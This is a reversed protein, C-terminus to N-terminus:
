RGHRGGTPRLLIALDLLTGAPERVLLQDGPLDVRFFVLTPDGVVDTRTMARLGPLEAEGRHVHRLLEAAAPEGHELLDQDGLLGSPDGVREAPADM